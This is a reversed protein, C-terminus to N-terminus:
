LCQCFPRHALRIIFDWSITKNWHWHVIGWCHFYSWVSYWVICAEPSSNCSYTLRTKAFKAGRQDTEHREFTASIWNAWDSFSSGRRGNWFSCGGLSLICLARWRCTRRIVGIRAAPADGRYFHDAVEVLGVRRGGGMARAKTTCHALLCTHIRRARRWEQFKLFLSPFSLSKIANNFVEM